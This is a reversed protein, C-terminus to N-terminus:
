DVGYEMIYDDMVYGSGIDTVQTRVTEFGLAQYAAISGDNHRNVTLWIASFERKKCVGELFELARRALKRGRFPADIYLKSLFLKSGTPQVGMYGATQGDLDMLFYEYGDKGIQRTVAPVSQFKEVMYAVQAEGLLPTYHETWIRAALDCMTQVQAPQSVPLFKVTEMM